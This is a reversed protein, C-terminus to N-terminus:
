VLALQQAEKGASRIIETYINGLFLKGWFVLGNMHVLDNAVKCIRDRRWTHRVAGLTFSIKDEPPLGLSAAIGHYDRLRWEDSEAPKSLNIAVDDPLVPACACAERFSAISKCFSGPKLLEKPVAVKDILYEVVSSDWGIMKPAEDGVVVLFNKHYNEREQFYQFVKFGPVKGSRPTPIYGLTADEQHGDPTMKYIEWPIVGLGNLRRFVYGHEAFNLRISLGAAFQDAKESHGLERLINELGLEVASKDDKGGKMTWTTKKDCSFSPNGTIPTALAAMVRKYVSEPKIWGSRGQLCGGEADGALKCAYQQITQGIGYKAPSWRPTHPYCNKEYCELYLVYEGYM